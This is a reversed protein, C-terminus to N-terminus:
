SIARQVQRSNDVVRAGGSNGPRVHQGAGMVRRAHAPTESRGIQVSLIHAHEHLDATKVVTLPGSRRIEDSVCVAGCRSGRRM